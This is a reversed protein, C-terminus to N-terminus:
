FVLPSDAHLMQIFLMNELTLWSRWDRKVESPMKGRRWEWSPEWYGEEKVTSELHKAYDLCLAKHASFYPSDTGHIFPAPTPGYDGTRYSRSKLTGEVRAQLWNFVPPPLLAQRKATVLDERLFVLSSLEHFEVEYGNRVAAVFQEIVRVARRYLPTEAEDMLVIFGAIEASPNFNEERESDHTWWAAHPYLNNTEITFPWKGAIYAATREFYTLLKRIIPSAESPWGIERLVRIAVTCAIPTSNPNTNDPELRHGFGGDENQYAKLTKLLDRLQGGEFHYNWRAVDLPRGNRLLYNRINRLKQSAM